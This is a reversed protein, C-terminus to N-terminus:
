KNKESLISDYIEKVKTPSTAIDVVENVDKEVFRRSQEYHFHKYVKNNFERNIRYYVYNFHEEGTLRKMSALTMANRVAIRIDYVKKFDNLLCAYSNAPRDKISHKFTLLANSIISVQKSTLLTSLEKNRRFARASEEYYKKCECTKGYEHFIVIILMMEIDLNHISAISIVRNILKLREEDYISYVGTDEIRKAVRILEKLVRNRVNKRILETVKPNLEKTFDGYLQQSMVTNNTTVPEITESKITNKEDYASNSNFTTNLLRDISMGYRALIPGFGDHVMDKITLKDREKKIDQINLREEVYWRVAEKIEEKTFKKNNNIKLLEWKSFKNPYILNIFTVINEKCHRRFMPQIGLDKLLGHNIVDLINTENINNEKFINKTITIFDNLTCNSPYRRNEERCNISKMLETNM